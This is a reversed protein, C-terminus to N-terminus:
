PTTAGDELAGVLGHEAAFLAAGARNNVGAKLYIHELHNSVTKTSIVLRRAVESTTCGCAVLSLVEVERATLGAPGSSRGARPHGAEALVADVAAKDLRGARVEERLRAAAAAPDLAPRHPRAEVSGRYSDAAALIRQTMPLASGSLGRPYGSGDLRERHAEAISAEAQLGQVRSLIRGTLYPYLRIRERDSESLTAPKEWVSNPVGMRGLDHVYAARRVRAVDSPPLGLRGAAASALDAVARSHGVTFPCKLDAFDGLARLMVDLDDGHLMVDRDPALELARSWVDQDPLVNIRSRCRLLAEVLSPDFQRGSRARAMALAGSTGHTRLHVECVEALQVVRTALPLEAGSRGEPLGNGDWREFACAVAEGVSRDLGIHEAMLGASQCHSHILAAMRTRPTLLLTLLLRTRMPLPRASGTRRVLYVLYPLGSWDLQYSDRRMALDDGFWRSFEHSDAHCGIWLVLNTYYVTARQEDDLDLEDALMAALLSSRLVHEMPLGLGLDISISLAALVEARRAGQGNGEVPTPM